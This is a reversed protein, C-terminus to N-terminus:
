GAHGNVNGDVGAQMTDTGIKSSSVRADGRWWAARAAWEGSDQRGCLSM